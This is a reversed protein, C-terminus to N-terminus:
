ISEEEFRIIDNEELEKGLQVEILELDTLAQITHKKGIDITFVDGAKVSSNMGDMTFIGTGSIITWIEQRLRHMQYSLKKGQKVFLHKTLSKNGNGLSFLELVKYRGWAREEFMPRNNVDSLYEKLYSSQEKDSVLIGDYNAAVIMDKAGIVVVPISLENIVHTNKSNQSLTVRGITNAGMEEALTNWTGMDMWRGDYTILGIRKAKEVVEYDMSNKNLLHYNEYVEEYSSVDMYKALVNMMYGLKFAFVGCNWLAGGAILEEAQAVTPKEKFRDVERLSGGAKPQIYGYKESPYTPTVGMLVIDYQNTNVGDKLEQFKHFYDIDVYPDVPMVIVVEDDSLCKNFKLYCCALAIAPFTDRREPEIVINASDGIQGVIASEQTSSTTVTLSKDLGAEKIQSFVRQIMSQKEGSDTSLLKLFQKSRTENSLPWLRKGSGGSLLVINM